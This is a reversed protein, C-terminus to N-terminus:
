HGSGHGAEQAPGKGAGIGAIGELRKSFDLKNGFLLVGVLMAGLTLVDQSALFAIFGNRLDDIAVFALVIAVDLLRMKM